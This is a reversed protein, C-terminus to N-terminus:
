DLTFPTDTLKNKNGRNQVLDDLLSSVGNDGITTYL